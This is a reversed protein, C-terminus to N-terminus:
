SQCYVKADYPTYIGSTLLGLIGNLFSTQREVKVVKNAGGCVAAADVTQTQGLGSVFFTQMDEKGLKGTQGNIYATQTSCAALTAVLILPLIIKKM